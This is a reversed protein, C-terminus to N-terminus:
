GFTSLAALFPLEMRGRLRSHCTEQPCERGSLLFEELVWGKRSTKSAAPSRKWSDPEEGDAQASGGTVSARGGGSRGRRPSLDCGPGAECAHSRHLCGPPRARPKTSQWGGQFDLYDHLWPAAKEM